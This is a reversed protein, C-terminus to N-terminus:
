PMAEPLINDAIVARYNNLYDYAIVTYRDRLTINSFTYDGADNSWTEAVLRGNFENFLRVKRRLPLNTPIAKEKVTGVIQGRGGSIADLLFLPGGFLIWSPTAVSQEYVKLPGAFLEAQTHSM